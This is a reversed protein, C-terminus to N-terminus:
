KIWSTFIALNYTFASGFSFSSIAQFCLSETYFLSSLNQLARGYSPLVNQGFRVHLKCQQMLRRFPFTPVPWAIYRAFALDQTASKQIHQDWRCIIRSTNKFNSIPQGMGAFILRPFTLIEISIRTLFFSYYFLSNKSRIWVFCCSKQGGFKVRPKWVM